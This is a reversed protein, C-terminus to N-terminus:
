GAQAVREVFSFVGLDALRSQALPEIQEGDVCAEVLLGAKRIIAARRAAREVDNVDVTKSLEIVIVIDDARDKSRALAVADLDILDRWDDDSINGADYAEIVGPLDVLQVRRVDRYRWALRSEMRRLYREAYILEVLSNGEGYDTMDFGVGDYFASKM